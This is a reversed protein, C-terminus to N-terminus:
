GHGVSRNFLAELAAAVENPRQELIYHDGGEIQTLVSNPIRKALDQGISFPFYPDQDGWIMACPMAFSEAASGLERRATTRFHAYFHAFWRQGLDTKMWALYGDLEQSTFSKNRVFRQFMMKHLTYIPLFPIVRRAVPIRAIWTMMDLQLRTWFAIAEHARTNILALRDVRNPFNATFALALLGGYDHGVLDATKIGLADMLLGIRPFEDEYRLSLSLSKESAGWGFWDPMYATRTKAIRPAIHRWCQHNQPYGHLLLCPPGFGQKFVEIRTGDVKLTMQQEAAIMM